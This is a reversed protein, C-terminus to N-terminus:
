LSGSCFITRLSCVIHVLSVFIYVHLVFKVFERFLINTLNRVIFAECYSRVQSYKSLKKNTIKILTIYKTCYMIM